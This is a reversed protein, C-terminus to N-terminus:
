SDHTRFAHDLDRLATALAQRDDRLENFAIQLRHEGETTLSLLSARGDDPAPRREILGAQETRQVLETVAPQRLHMLPHLDVLRVPRGADDASKIMLLLDYRQSTLGAHAAVTETRHLFHRLHSRFVAARAIESADPDVATTQELM